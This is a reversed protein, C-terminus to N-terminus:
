FRSNFLVPWKDNKMKTVIEWCRPAGRSFYGNNHRRAGATTTTSPWPWTRSRTSPARTMRPQRRKQPTVQTPPTKWLISPNGTGSICSIQIERWITSILSFRVEQPRGQAPLAERLTRLLVAQLRHAQAHAHDPQVVPQVGERVGRVQAAERRCPLSIDM